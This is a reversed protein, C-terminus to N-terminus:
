GRAFMGWGEVGVARKLVCLDGAREIQAIAWDVAEAGSENNMALLDCRVEHLREIWNGDDVTASTM